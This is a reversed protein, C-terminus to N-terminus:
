VRYSKVTTDLVQVVVAVSLVSLLDTQHSAQLIYQRLDLLQVFM